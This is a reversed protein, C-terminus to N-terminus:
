ECNDMSRLSVFPSAGCNLFHYQECSLHCFKCRCSEDVERCAGKDCFKHHFGHASTRCVLHRNDQLPERWNSSMFAPTNFIQDDFDSMRSEWESLFGQYQETVPLDYTQVLDEVMTKGGAILYTVRNRTYKSIGLVRKLFTSKTKDMELLNAVTLHEWITRIGYSATPLIKLNFLRVATDVSLGRLNRIDFIACIAKRKREAVHRTFSFATTTLEFGLYRFSSVYQLESGALVMRDTAALRGGRRFKMVKTKNSNIVLHNEECYEELFKLARQVLERSESYIALDDAYLLIRVGPFLGQILVPLDYLLVSFLLPAINDGQPVGTTQHFEDYEARSDQLIIGNRSLMNVVLGLFNGAVGLESLKRLVLARSARDFASRFDVFCV